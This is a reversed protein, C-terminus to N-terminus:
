TWGDGDRALKAVFSLGEAGSEVPKVSGPAPTSPPPQPASIPPTSPPSVPSAPSRQSDPQHALGGADTALGDDQRRLADRLQRSQQYRRSPSIGSSYGDQLRSQGQNSPSSGQPASVTSLQLSAGSNMTDVYLRLAVVLHDSISKINGNGTRPLSSIWGYVPAHFPNDPYIRACVRFFQASIDVTDQADVTAVDADFASAPLEDFGGGWEDDDIDSM